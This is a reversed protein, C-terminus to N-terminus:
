RKEERVIGETGRAGVVMESVLIVSSDACAEGSVQDIVVCDKGAVQPSTELPNSSLGGRRDIAAPHDSRRLVGRHVRRQPLSPDFEARFRVRESTRM